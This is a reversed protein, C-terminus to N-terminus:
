PRLSLFFPPSPPLCPAGHAGEPRWTAENHLLPAHILPRGAPPAVTSRRILAQYTAGLLTARPEREAPRGRDRGQAPWSLPQSPLRYLPM